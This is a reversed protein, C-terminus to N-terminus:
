ATTCAIGVSAFCSVGNFSLLQIDTCAIRHLAPSEVKARSGSHATAFDLGCSRDYHVSPIRSEEPSSMRM